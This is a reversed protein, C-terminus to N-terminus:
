KVLAFQRNQGADFTSLTHQTKAGRLRQLELMARIHPSVSGLFDIWLFPSLVM